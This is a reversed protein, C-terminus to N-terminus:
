WLPDFGMITCVERYVPINRPNLDDIDVPFSEARLEIRGFRGSGWFYSKGNICDVDSVAYQDDRIQSEFLVLRQFFRVRSGDVRTLAPSGDKLRGLQVYSAVPNEDVNLEKYKTYLARELTSAILSPSFSISLVFLSSIILIRM